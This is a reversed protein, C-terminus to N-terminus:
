FGLYFGFDFQVWWFDLQLVNADLSNIDEDGM